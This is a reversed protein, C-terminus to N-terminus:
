ARVVQLRRRSILLAVGVASLLGALALGPAVDAAGTVALEGDGDSDGDGDGEVPWATSRIDTVICGAGIEVYMSTSIDGDAAIASLRLEYRGPTCADVPVSVEDSFTGVEDTEGDILMQEGPYIVVSYASFSDLESGTALVTGSSFVDGMEFLLELTLEPATVFYDESPSSGSGLGNTATAICSYEQLPTFGSVSIPVSTATGSVVDTPDLTNTCEVAWSNVLTDPAYAWFLATTGDGTWENNDIYPEPLSEVRFMTEAVSQRGAADVIAVKFAWFTGTLYIDTYVDGGTCHESGIELMGGVFSSCALPNSGYNPSSPDNIITWTAAGTAAYSITTTSGDISLPSFLIPTTLLPAVAYTMGVKSFRVWQSFDEAVSNQIDNVRCCSEIYVEYLGDGLTSLDGTFTEVVEAYLPKDEETETVVELFVDTGTGSGPVDTYAGISRVEATSGLGVFTDGSGSEWASTVVWTATDGTISFDPGSARFHSASAGSM